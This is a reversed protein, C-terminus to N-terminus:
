RSMSWTCRHAPPPASSLGLRPESPPVHAPWPLATRFLRVGYTRAANLLIKAHVLSNAHDESSDNSAMTPDGYQNILIVAASHKDVTETFVNRACGVVDALSVVADLEASLTGPLTGAAVARSDTKSPFKAQTQEALRAEVAGKPIQEVRPHPPTIWEDNTAKFGPYHVYISGDESIEEIKGCYWHRPFKEIDVVQGVAFAM